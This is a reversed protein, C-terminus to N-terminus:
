IMFCVRVSITMRWGEVTSVSQVDYLSMLTQWSCCWPSLNFLIVLDYDVLPLTYFGPTEQVSRAWDGRPLPVKTRFVVIKLWSVQTLWKYDKFSFTLFFKIDFVVPLNGHWLGNWLTFKKCLDFLLTKMLFKSSLFSLKM